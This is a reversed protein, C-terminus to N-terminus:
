QEEKICYKGILTEHLGSQHSKAGKEARKFKENWEKNDTKSDMVALGENLLMESYSEQANAYLICQNGVTEYHYSQQIYLHERAFHKLHPHSHYFKQIESRCLEPSAGTAAMRELPIIGFPECKVPVNRDLLEIDANSKISTLLAVGNKAYLPNCLGILVILRFFFTENKSMTHKKSRKKLVKLFSKVELSLSVGINNMYILMNFSNNGGIKFDAKGIPPPM